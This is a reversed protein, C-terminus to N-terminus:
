LLVRERILNVEKEKLSRLKGEAILECVYLIHDSKHINHMFIMICM